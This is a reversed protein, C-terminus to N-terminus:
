NFTVDPALPKKMSAEMKNIREQLAHNDNLVKHYAGQVTKYQEEAAELGRGIFTQMGDIAEQSDKFASEMVTAAMKMSAFEKLMVILALAGLAFLLASLGLTVFILIEV